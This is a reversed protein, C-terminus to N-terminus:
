PSPSRVIEKVSSRDVRQTIGGIRFWLMDGQEWVEDVELISGNQLKISVTAKKKLRGPSEPKVQSSYRSTLSIVSDDYKRPLPLPLQLSRLSEGSNLDLFILSSPELYLYFETYHSEVPDTVKAVDYGRFESLFPFRLKGEIKIALNGTKKRAVEPPLHLRFQQYSSLNTRRMALYISTYSVVSYRFSVGMATRGVRSGLFRRNSRLQVRLFDDRIERLQKSFDNLKSEETTEPRDFAKILEKPIDLGMLQLYETVNELRFSLVHSDADYKQDAAAVTFVFTGAATQPGIRIQPLLSQLRIKFNQTNEFEDKQLRAQYRKLAKYIEAPEVVNAEVSVRPHRASTARIVHTEVTRSSGRFAQAAYESCCFAVLTLLILVLRKM